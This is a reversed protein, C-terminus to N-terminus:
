GRAQVSQWGSEVSYLSGPNAQRMKKKESYSIQAQLTSVERAQGTKDKWQDDTM